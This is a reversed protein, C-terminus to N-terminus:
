QPTIIMQSPTIKIYLVKRDRHYELFAKNKEEGLDTAWIIKASELDAKNFVLEDHVSYDTSYSVFILYNDSSNDVTQEIIPKLYIVYEPISLINTNELVIKTSSLDKVPLPTIVPLVWESVSTKQYILSFLILFVLLFTASIKNKPNKYTILLLRIVQTLILYLSSTLPASYHTFDSYTAFSMCCFTFLITFVPLKSWRSKKMLPFIMAYLFILLPPMLLFYPLNLFLFILAYIPYLSRINPVGYSEIEKFFGSDTLSLYLKQLRPSGQLKSENPSQFLFLSASFYQSQHETYPFRLANGTIRYNYYAMASLGLCAIFIGPLIVQSFKRAFSIDSKLIIRYFLILLAPLMTVTGEFPRSNLLIVGGLTMIVTSGLLLRKKTIRRFGGFFLAGGAFAVMGGWYSQSWYSDIGIILIMLITGIIAWKPRSWISLMWFLSAAALACSIWVGFIPHGFLVQGLALFLGQMPPYKSMYTPKVLTHPAEFHESFEPTPNTLRGHAFTDGALLYSFEDHIAPVPFGNVYGYIMPAVFGIIAFILVFFRQENRTPSILLRKIQSKSQM